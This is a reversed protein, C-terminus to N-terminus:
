LTTKKDVHWDTVDLPRYFNWFYRIVKYKKINAKKCVIKSIKEAYNNLFPDLIEETGEFIDRGYTLMSMGKFNSFYNQLEKFDLKKNVTISFGSEELILNIDHPKNDYAMMWNKCKILHAIIKFNDENSLINKIIKM